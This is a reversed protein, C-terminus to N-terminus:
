QAATFKKFRLFPFETKMDLNDVMTKDPHLLSQWVPLLLEGNACYSLAEETKFISSFRVDCLQSPM